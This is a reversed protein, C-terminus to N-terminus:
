RVVFREEHLVRGDPTRLEVRWRGAGGAGITIRSYTRYGAGPNAQVRLERSQEVRDDRYWRHVVVTDRPAAVRTYFYIAGPDVPDTPPTCTWAASTTLTRCLKADVVSLPVDPTSVAARIPPATAAPPRPTPTPPTPPTPSNPTSTPAPAAPSTTVPPSSAGDGRGLWLALGALTVIVAGIVPMTLRRPSPPDRTPPAAIGPAPEPEFMPAAPPAPEFPIGRAACFDALNQRSTAVRPDGPPLAATVIASARRYCREAEAFERTRECVVGLNNLTSALDPHTAGLTAEQLAVAERLRAAAAPFDGAAASQEASEVAYRVHASEPM